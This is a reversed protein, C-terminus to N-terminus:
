DFGYTKKMLVEFLLFEAGSLESFTGDTNEFSSTLKAPLLSLERNYRAMTTFPNACSSSQTSQNTRFFQRLDRVM